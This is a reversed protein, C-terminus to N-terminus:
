SCVIQNKFKLNIFKYKNWGITNLGKRYFVILKEFKEKMDETDGFLITNNGIKPILEFEKEDNLYIQEIQAKLFDNKDIYQSLEFIKFLPTTKLISDYIKNGITDLCTTLTFKDFINGNAIISRSPYKPNVPMVKGTNDIYFSENYVNIVRVIPKRQKINIKVLGNMTAYVDAKLVYPNCHILNEIEYIKIASMKKGVIEGEFSKILALVDEEIIFYDESQYDIYVEIGKCSINKNKNNLLIILIIAGTILIGWVSIIIIKKM